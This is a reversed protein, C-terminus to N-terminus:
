SFLRRSIECSSLLHKLIDSVLDSMGTSSEGRSIDFKLHAVTRRPMTSPTLRHKHTECKRHHPDEAALTHVMSRCARGGSRLDVCPISSFPPVSPPFRFAAFLLSALGVSRRGVLSLSADGGWGLGFGLWVAALKATGSNDSTRGRETWWECGTSWLVQVRQGATRAPGVAGPVMSTHAHSHTHPPAGSRPPERNESEVRDQDGKLRLHFERRRDM